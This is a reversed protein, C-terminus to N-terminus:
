EVYLFLYYGKTLDISITICEKKTKTNYDIIYEIDDFICEIGNFITYNCLDNFNSGSLEINNNSNYLEYDIKM